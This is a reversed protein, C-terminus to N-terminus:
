PFIYTPFLFLSVANITSTVINKWGYENKIVRKKEKMKKLNNPVGSAALYMPPLSSNEPSKTCQLPPLAYPTGSLEYSDDITRFFITSLPILNTRRSITKSKTSALSPSTLFPSLTHRLHLCILSLTNKIEGALPLVAVKEPSQIMEGTFIASSITLGLIM